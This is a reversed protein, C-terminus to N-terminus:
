HESGDIKEGPAAARNQESLASLRPHSALGALRGSAVGAAAVWAGRIQEGLADFAPMPLGQYNKGGTVAGYAAYAKRALEEPSPHASLGLAKKLTQHGGIALLGVSLGSRLVGALDLGQAVGVGLGALAGVALALVVGGLPSAFWAWRRALAGRLASVALSALGALVLSWDGVLAADFAVGDM